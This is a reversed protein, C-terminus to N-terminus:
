QYICLGDIIPKIVSYIQWVFLSILLGYVVLFLWSHENRNADKFIGTMGKQRWEEKAQKDGFLERYLSWCFQTAVYTFGFGILTMLSSDAVHRDLPLACYSQGIFIIFSLGVSAVLLSRFVVYGAMFWLLTFVIGFIITLVIPGITAFFPTAVFIALFIIVILVFIFFVQLDRREVGVRELLKLIREM